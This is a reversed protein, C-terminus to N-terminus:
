EGESSLRRKTREILDSLEDLRTRLITKEQETMRNLRERIGYGGLYGSSVGAM